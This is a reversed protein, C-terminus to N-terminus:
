LSSIIELYRKLSKMISEVDQEVKLISLRKVELVSVLQTTLKEYPILNELKIEMSQCERYNYLLWSACDSCIYIFFGAVKLIIMFTCDWIALFYRIQNSYIEAILFYVPYARLDKPAFRHTLEPLGLFRWNHHEVYKPNDEIFDLSNHSNLSLRDCKRPATHRLQALM